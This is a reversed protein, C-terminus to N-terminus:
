RNMKYGELTFEPAGNHTVVITIKQLGDDNETGDDVPDLREATITVAYNAPIDDAPLETYLPPNNDVDYEQNRIYELQSKALSEVVVRNQSVMIAKSSTSMGTLFLIAVIGLIAMATLSEILSIGCEHGIARKICTRTKKILRNKM